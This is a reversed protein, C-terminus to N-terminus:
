LGDDKKEAGDKASKAGKKPEVYESVFLPLLRAAQSDDLTVVDGPGHERGKVVVAKEVTYQKSAM